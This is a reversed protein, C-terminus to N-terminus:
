RPDQYRTGHGAPSPRDGALNPYLRRPNEHHAAEKLPRVASGPLELWLMGTRITLPTGPYPLQYRIVSGQGHVVLQINYLRAWRMAAAVTRGRLDPWYLNNRANSWAVRVIHSPVPNPTAREPRTRPRPSGARDPPIHWLRALSMALERFAPAAVEQGYYKGQPEDLMVYIVVRPQTAPFFGIFSALYRGEQYGGRPGPKQATGTKGAVRYGPLAAAQGSGRSVVQELIERLTTAVHAPLLRQKREALLTHRRGRRDVWARAFRPTVAYGGNAIAAYFRLLQIPTVAIGQGFAQYAPDIRAWRRWPRLLGSPEGAMDVGTKEGFGWDKYRAAIFAPPLLLGLRAAGVNSSYILIDDFRLDGFPQHDRIRVGYVELRGQGGYFVQNRLAPDYMLAMAAFVPKFTSGPELVWHVAGVQWRWPDRYLERYRNPDFAPYQAHFLIEGTAPDMGVILGRKAQSKRVTKSLVREAEHQAYLDISLYLQANQFTHPVRNRPLWLTRQHADVLVPLRLTDGELYANYTYEVGALGQNDVGVFGIVSGARERHPYVRQEAPVVHVGALNRAEIARAQAADLRGRTIWVFAPHERAQRRVRAPDLPVWAQLTRLVTDLDRIQIPRIYLSYARQNMALTQGNRDRILGRHLKIEVRGIHQARARAAFREHQFGQVWILRGMLTVSWLLFLGTLWTNRRKM